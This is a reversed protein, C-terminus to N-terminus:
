VPKLKMSTAKLSYDYGKWHYWVIGKGTECSSSSHYLSNLGSWGCNSYWWGAQNFTLACNIGNTDQDRDPTSFMMGSNSNGPDTISDGATGSYGSVSLQYGDVESAVSFTSYEAFATNGEWDELDVRLKYPRATTIAHLNANGLWHEGDLDGFGDRYGAWNHTFNVSGNQRRQFLIWGSSANLECYVQIEPTSDTPRIAYVGDSREGLEHLHQCDRITETSFM